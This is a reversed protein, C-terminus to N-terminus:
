RASDWADRLMTVGFENRAAMVITAVTGIRTTYGKRCFYKTVILMPPTLSNHDPDSNADLFQHSPRRDHPNIMTAGIVATGAINSIGM